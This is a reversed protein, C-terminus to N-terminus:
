GCAGCDNPCSAISEAADCVGDGCHCDIPCSNSDEGVAVSCVGDSCIACDQPCSIVTEFGADCHGDNCEPCGALGLVIFPEISAANCRTCGPGVAGTTLVLGRFGFTYRLLLLADTLASVSGNGDVDYPSQRCTPPVVACARAAPTTAVGLALATAVILSGGIFAPGFRRVTRATM